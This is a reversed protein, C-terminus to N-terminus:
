GSTQNLLNRINLILGRHLRPPELMIVQFFSDMNITSVLPWGLYQPRRTTRTSRRSEQTPPDDAEALGEEATEAPGDEMTEDERDVLDPFPFLDSISCFVIYLPECTYPNLISTGICFHFLPM